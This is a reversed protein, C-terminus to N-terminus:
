HAGRLQAGVAARGAGHERRVGASNDGAAPVQLVCDMKLASCAMEAACVAFQCWAMSSHQNPGQACYGSPQSMAVAQERHTLRHDKQICSCVDIACRLRVQQGRYSDYEMEVNKFEFPLLAQQMMEGPPSLDRAAPCAWATLCPLNHEALQTLGTAHGQECRLYLHLQAAPIFLQESPTSCCASLRHAPLPAGGSDTTM